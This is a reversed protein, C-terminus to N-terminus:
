IGADKAMSHFASSKDALLADPHDFETVQGADLVIM